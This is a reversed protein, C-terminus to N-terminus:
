RPVSAEAAAHAEPMRATVRLGGGARNSARISGGHAEVISRAIALGLGSGGDSEGAQTIAPGRVFREFIEELQAEPVGPGDDDLIVEWHTGDLHSQLTVTRGAPSYRLANALLNLLVQRLRTPDFHAEGNDNRALTFKLGADEALAGADEAIARMFTAPNQWRRNLALGGADARALLLLNEVLKNLRTIEEIQEEVAARDADDLRPSHSLREAHLRILSLPTKLEHSADATFRKVQEFSTELRAFLENLLRALAAIEDNGQPVPLREALNSASIHRAARQMAGVPRLAISALLWGVGLSCAFLAPVGVYLSSRYRRLLAEVQELSTAVQVHYTHHEAERMRAPQDLLTVTRVAPRVDDSLDPLTLSGLNSSRFIVGHGARHIQFYYQPADIETHGELEAVVDREELNEPRDGLRTTIEQIEADLLFDIGDMMQRQVVLYGVWAAAGATLTVAISFWLTLRFRLSRM